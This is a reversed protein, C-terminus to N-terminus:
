AAAELDGQSAAAAMEEAEAVAAAMEEAEAIAATMEGAEAAAAMGAQASAAELHKLWCMLNTAQEERAVAAEVGSEAAVPVPVTKKKAGIEDEAAVSPEEMCECFQIETAATPELMTDAVIEAESEAAVPVAM